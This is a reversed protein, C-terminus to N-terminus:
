TLVVAKYGTDVIFDDTPNVSVAIKEDLSLKAGVEELQEKIMARIVPSGSEAMQKELDFGAQLFTYGLVVCRSTSRLYASVLEHRQGILEKPVDIVSLRHEAKDSELIHQLLQPVGPRTAHNALLYPAHPDVFVVDNANARKLHPVTSESLVHAIVVLDESIGKATLAALITRQEDPAKGPQLKSEDPVILCMRSSEIFASRLIAEETFNGEIHTIDLDKFEAVMRNVVDDEEENVLIILNNNPQNESVGHLIDTVSANWGLIVLHGKYKEPDM